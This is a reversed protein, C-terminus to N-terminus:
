EDRIIGHKLAYKVLGISNNVGLKMMINKRHTDVTSVSLFLQAAIEASSYERCVLKLVEIERKSLVQDVKHDPVNVTRKYADDDKASIDIEPSFWTSGAAIKGLAEVLQPLEANKLIYGQIKYQMLRHLYRTGRMMTHYLIPLEPYKERLKILLTEPDMDPLQMDLLLVDPKCGSLLELTEGGTTASGIVIIDREEKLLLNLGKLYIDHDDVICVSVM